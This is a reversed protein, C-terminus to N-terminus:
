KHSCFNAFLPKFSPKVIIYHFLIIEVYLLKNEANKGQAKKKKKKLRNDVVRVLTEEEYTKIKREVFPKDEM